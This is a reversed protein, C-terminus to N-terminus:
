NQKHLGENIRTHTEIVAWNVPFNVFGKVNRFVNKGGILVNCHTCQDVAKVQTNNEETVVSTQHSHDRGM